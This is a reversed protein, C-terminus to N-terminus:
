RPAPPTEPTEPTEPTGLVVGVPIAIEPLVTSALTEGAHATVIRQYAGGQPDSHREIANAILDVLWAEAIGAAAYRPFKTRRDYARSSEAVEVLFLVDAPNPVADYERRHLVAIDPLPITEDTLQVPNQVSILAVSRAQGWLLDSFVTVARFHRSGIAPMAYFEGGILEVREDPSFIGAEIMREFDTVTFHRRTPTTPAAITAASM